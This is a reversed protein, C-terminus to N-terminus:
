LTEIGPLEPAIGYTDSVIDRVKPGDGRRVIEILDGCALTGPQGVAFYLGTRLARAVQTYIDFSFGDGPHDLTGYRAPLLRNAQVSAVTEFGPKPSM